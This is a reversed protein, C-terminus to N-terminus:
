GYKGEIYGMIAFISLIGIVILIKVILEESM